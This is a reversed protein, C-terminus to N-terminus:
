AEDRPSVGRWCVHEGRPQSNRPLPRNVFGNDSPAQMIANRKMSLKTRGGVCEKALLLRGRVSTAPSSVSETQEATANRLIALHISTPPTRTTDHSAKTLFSPNTAAAAAAVRRPHRTPKKPPHLQESQVLDDYDFFKSDMRM